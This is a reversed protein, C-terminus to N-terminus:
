TGKLSSLNFYFVVIHGCSHPKVIFVDVEAHLIAAGTMEGQFRKRAQVM